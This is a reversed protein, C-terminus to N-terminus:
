KRLKWILILIILISALAPWSHPLNNQNFTELALLLFGVVSLRLFWPQLSHRGKWVSLLQVLWAIALIALGYFM